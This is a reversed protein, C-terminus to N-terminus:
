GVKSFSPGTSPSPGPPGVVKGNGIGTLVLSAIGLGLGNAMRMSAAGTMQNDAMAKQLEEILTGPNAMVVKSVDTGVGVTPCVGTYGGSQTVAHAIALTVITSLSSSLPGVIGASALGNTMLPIIPLIVLKTGYEPITGVGVTGTSIGILAVNLPNSIWEYVGESIAWALQDFAIGNMPFTTTGKYLQLAMYITISNLGKGSISPKKAVPTKSLNIGM